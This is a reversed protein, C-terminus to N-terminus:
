MKNNGELINDARDEQNAAIFDPYYISPLPHMDKTMSYLKEQLNYDFVKARKMSEAINLKSIDWGSIVIDNPNVLPLLQNLPLYIEEKGM